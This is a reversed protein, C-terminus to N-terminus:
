SNSYKFFMGKYPKGSLCAKSIGQFKCNLKEAADHCSEFTNIVTQTDNDYQIVQKSNARGIKKKTEESCPHAGYTNGFNRERFRQIFKETHKLGLYGEGGDTLNYCKGIKKFYYILDIEILKASIENVNDYLIKHEIQDWGYKLIAAYFHPNNKYANAKGSWRESVGKSTIGIYFKDSPTKHLYVTFM